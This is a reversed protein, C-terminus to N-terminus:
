EKYSVKIGFDPISLGSDDVVCNVEANNIVVIRASVTTENQRIYENVFKNNHRYFRSSTNYKNVYNTFEATPENGYACVVLLLCMLIYKKM